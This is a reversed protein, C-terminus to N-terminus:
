NGEPIRGRQQRARATGGALFGGEVIFIVELTIKIQMDGLFESDKCGYNAWAKPNHREPLAIASM